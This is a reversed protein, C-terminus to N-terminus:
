VKITQQQQQQQSLAIGGDSRLPKMRFGLTRLIRQREPQDEIFSHENRVRGARYGLRYGGLEPPWNSDDRPVTFKHPVVATQYLTKYITLARVFQRFHEEERDGDSWVFRLANLQQRRNAGDPGNLYTGKLRISQLRRGLPLGWLQEPWDDSHHPVCFHVPVDLSRHEEHHHLRSYIASAHCVQFWKLDSPKQNPRLGLENLLEAREPHNKIYSQFHIVEHCRQGLPYGWYIRPWQTDNHPVCFTRPIQWIAMANNTAITTTTTTTAHSNMQHQLQHQRQHHLLSLYYRLVNYFDTFKADGCNWVFGMRDLQQRRKFSGKVFDGRRRIRSVIKGLPLSWVAKPWELEEEAVAGTVATTTTTTTAATTNTEEHTHRRPVVFGYPVQITGYLTLYHVLAEVVLNWKPQLRGWVFGLENLENVRESRDRVHLLWWKMDYVTGALDYGIWEPPYYGGSATDDHDDDDNYPPVMYRYPLVLHGHVSHYHRLAQITCSYPLHHALSSSRRPTTVEITRPTTLPRTDDDDDDDDDDRQDSATAESNAAAAANKSSAMKNYKHLAGSSRLWHTSGPSCHPMMRTAGTSVFTVHYASVLSRFSILWPYVVVRLQIRMQLHCASNVRLRAVCSQHVPLM